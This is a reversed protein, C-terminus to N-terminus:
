VPGQGTFFRWKDSKDSCDFVEFRDYTSWEPHVKPVGYFTRFDSLKRESKRTQASDGGCNDFMAVSRCTSLM